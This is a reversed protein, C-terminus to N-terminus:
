ATRPSSRDRRADANRSFHDPLATRDIRRLSYVPAEQGRTDAEEARCRTDAVSEPALWGRPTEQTPPSCSAVAARDRLSLPPLPSRLRRAYRIAHAARDEAPSSECLEPQSPAFRRRCR